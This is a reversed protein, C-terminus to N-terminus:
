LHMDELILFSKPWKGLVCSDAGSDSIAYYKNKLEPTNTYEFHARVQIDTEPNGAPPDISLRAMMAYTDQMFDDDTSVSCGDDALNIDAMTSVLNLITDKAVM